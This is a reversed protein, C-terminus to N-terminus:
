YAGRATLVAPVTKLLLSVDLWFDRERVYARDLAVQEPFAIDARGSVQWICTIGPKALLRDRDAATYRVVEAPTAPRPGVLSMEGRLVNWLQPLEDISSRRILRGVPTIRPDERDKFRLDRREVSRRRRHPHASEADVYMSRFKWMRFPKGNLGIRTQAFFVPGRSSLAVAGGILILLPALIALGLASAGIDIGRKLFRDLGEALRAARPALRAALRGTRGGLAGPEPALTRAALSALFRANGIVYRGALRRPEQLLRWIWEFGTRRWALPARPIRNAYYDFLGGVGIVVAADLKRRHRHLWLDQKPMGLGVLLIDAGSRNIQEIVSEDDAETFYGDATGVIELDPTTAMMNRAAATAVGPMGGLLFLRQGHQAAQRCLVPFLDTGNVNGALTVGALRAAIRLGVGDAFLYDAQSLIRGYSPDRQALTVGHANLFAVTTPARLVARGVLVTAADDITCNAIPLGLVNAKDITSINASPTQESLPLTTLTQSYAPM